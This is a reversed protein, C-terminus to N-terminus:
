HAEQVTLTIGQHEGALCEAEWRDGSRQLMRESYWLRCSANVWWAAFRAQLRLTPGDYFEVGLQLGITWEAHSWGAKGHAFFSRNGFPDRKV